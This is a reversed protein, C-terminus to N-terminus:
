ADPRLGFRYGVGIETVLYRPQRSDDGLKHRLNKVHADVTREEPMADFGRALTILQDRTLTQGAHDVLAFLIDTETRTLEVPEGGVTVARTARELVLGGGDFRLREPHAARSRRLVAAVRAALERVSFPKVLYDDAGLELGAVRDNESSKATLMVIPVDSVGRMARAVEEGPIDPLVLDLVVLSPRQETMAALASEGGESLAVQYGQRELYSGVVERIKREDDVVLVRESNM